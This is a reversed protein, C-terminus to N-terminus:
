GSSVAGPEPAIPDALRPGVAQALAIVGSMPRIMVTFDNVLGDPGFRLLDIGEVQKDGVSARFVLAHTGDGSLEDTYRFDTFTELIIGLLNRVAAAGEFPKFSVPSHLVVDESLVAMMGDLDQSEVAARFAKASM